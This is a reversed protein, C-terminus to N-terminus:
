LEKCVEEFRKGAGEIRIMRATESEKDITIALREEPLLRSIKEAWEIVCVGDGDLYEEIGLADAEEEDIRYVDMHYLPLRGEYEKIITFTPSNVIKRVGLADAIGKTFHTKGAGLGGSLTVIDGKQLLAGLRKAIEHTEEPSGSKVETGEM